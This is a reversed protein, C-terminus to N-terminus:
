SEGMVRRALPIIVARVPSLAPPIVIGAGLGHLHWDECALVGGVVVFGSTWLWGTVGSMRRGTVLRFVRELGVGVGQLLFYQLSGWSLPMGIPYQALMHLMGSALFVGLVAAVDGATKGFLLTAPYQMPYGGMVLFSRRLLQHWRRAWFDHLSTAYWPDMQIPPWARPDHGLLLVCLFAFFYYGSQFGLVVAIGTVLSTCIVLFFRPLLPLSPLFMSAPGPARFNPHQKLLVEFSDFLLFTLTFQLFAHLLWRRRLSPGSLHAFPFPPIFTGTGYAWGIGRLSSVLDVADLLRARFTDLPTPPAPRPSPDGNGNIATRNHAKAHGNASHKTSGNTGTTPTSTKGREPEDLRKFDNYTAYEVTKAFVILGYLGLAFNWPGMEVSMWRCGTLVFLCWGGALLLIGLRLLQTNPRRALYALLLVPPSISLLIPLTLPTLPIRAAPPLLPLSAILPIRDM